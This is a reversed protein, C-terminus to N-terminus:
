RWVAITSLALRQWFLGGKVEGIDVGALHFGAGDHSFAFGTDERSDLVYTLGKGKLQGLGDLM